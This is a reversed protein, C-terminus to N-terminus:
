KFCIESAVEDAKSKSVLHEIVKLSFETATGPGKGTILTIDDSNKHHSIVVKENKLLRGTEPYGTYEYSDLLGWEEIRGPVMCELGVVKSNTGRPVDDLLVTSLFKKLEVANKNESLSLGNSVAGGPILCADYKHLDVSSFDLVKNHKVINGYKTVITSKGAQNANIVEVELQARTLLDIPTFVEIDECGDFLIVAVKKM